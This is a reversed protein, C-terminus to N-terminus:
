YVQLNSQMYSQAGSFIYCFAPGGIGVLVDMQSSAYRSLLGNYYLVVCDAAATKGDINTRLSATPFRVRYDCAGWECSENSLRDSSTASICGTACSGGIATSQFAIVNCSVKGPVCLTSQKYGIPPLTETELQLPAPVESPEVDGNTASLAVEELIAQQDQGTLEFFPIGLEESRRAVAQAYRLDFPSVDGMALQVEILEQHFEKTQERSLQKIESFIAASGADDVEEFLYRRAL